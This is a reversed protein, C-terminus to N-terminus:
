AMEGYRSHRKLMNRWYEGGVKAPKLSSEWISLAFLLRFKEFDKRSTRHFSNRNANRMPCQPTCVNSAGWTSTRVSASRCSHLPLVVDAHVSYMTCITQSTKDPQSYTGEFQKSSNLINSDDLPIWHYGITDMPKLSVERYFYGSPWRALFRASVLWRHRSSCDFKRDARDMLMSLPM